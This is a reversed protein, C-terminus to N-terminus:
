AAQRGHVGHASTGIPPRYGSAPGNHWDNFSSNHNVLRPGTACGTLALPTLACPFAWRLM